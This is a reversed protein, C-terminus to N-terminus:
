RAICSPNQREPIQGMFFGALLRARKGVINQGAHCCAPCILNVAFEPQLGQQANNRLDTQGLQHDCIVANILTKADLAPGAYFLARHVSNIQLGPSHVGLAANGAHPTDVITWSLRHLHIKNALRNITKFFEEFTIM